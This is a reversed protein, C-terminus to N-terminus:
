EQEPVEPTEPAEGDEDVPKTEENAKSDSWIAVLLAKHNQLTKCYWVLFIEDSSVTNGGFLETYYRQIMRKSFSVFEEQSLKTSNNVTKKM